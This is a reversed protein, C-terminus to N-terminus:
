VSLPATSTYEFVERPTIIPQRGTTVEDQIVDKMSSGVTHIEFRYSLNYEEKREQREYMMVSSLRSVWAKSAEVSSNFGSRNSSIILLNDDDGTKQLDYNDFDVQNM